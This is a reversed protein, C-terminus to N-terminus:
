IAIRLRPTGAQKLLKLNQVASEQQALMRRAYEMYLRGVETLTVNRTTRTFLPTGLEEELKQLQQNLASQTVFRKEAARTISKEDAICVINEILHLDM